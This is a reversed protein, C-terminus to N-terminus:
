CVEVEDPNSLEESNKVPPMYIERLRVRLITDGGGWDVEWKPVSSHHNDFDFVVSLVEDRVSVPMDMMRLKFVSHEVDLDVFGDSIGIPELKIMGEERGTSLNIFVFVITGDFPFAYCEHIFLGNWVKRNVDNFKM